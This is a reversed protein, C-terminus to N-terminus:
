SLTRIWDEVIKFHTPWDPARYSQIAQLQRKREASDEMFDVISNQWAPGDLCDLYTPIDKAFERFVALDSAIVPTGLELAEAVPLGFGEAFSPMLLARAGAILSALETDDAKGLEIVHGKLDPARDLLAIAQDAEWGRQGVIVLLPMEDGRGAALRQWVHLLLAHNKRAEITGVVIFHPRDFQRPVVKAPVAPGAIWAAVAPPMQAGRGAAFSAIDDITARSNGIIGSASALVNEMRRLHKVEEGRRCFEPNSLPILDHIFFIARLGGHDIWRALTPENLGTHGINLYLLGTKRPARRAMPFAQVALHVFHPRFGVPGRSFLDFLRDSHRPTLIFYRGGRQIVAQARDRFHEVYALCVRDIGTPLSGRWLRWVLRSADILM